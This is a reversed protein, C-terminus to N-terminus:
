RRPEPPPIASATSLCRSWIAGIGSPSNSELRSWETIRPSRATCGSRHRWLWIERATNSGCAALSCRRTTPFSKPSHRRRTRGASRVWRTSLSCADPLSRPRKSKALKVLAPVAEAFPAKRALDAFRCYAESSFSSPQAQVWGVLLKRFARGAEQKGLADIVTPNKLLEILWTPSRMEFPSKLLSDLFLVTALDALEAKTQGKRPAKVDNILVKCSAACTNPAKKRDSAVESLRDGNRQVIEAFLKRTAADPKGTLKEWDALLPLDHHEKGDTDALFVAIRRKWGAAKAKSLLLECRSRIELDNSKAGEKLAPVSAFEMEVLRKGAAERVAFRSHGLQKVLEIADKYEPTGVDGPKAGFAAFATAM